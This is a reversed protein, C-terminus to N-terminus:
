RDSLDSTMVDYEPHSPDDRLREFAHREAEDPNIDGSCAMIAAREQLWEWQAETVRMLGCRACQILGRIASESDFSGRGRCHNRSPGVLPTRDPLLCHRCIERGDSWAWRETSGCVECPVADTLTPQPADSEVHEAKLLALIAATECAIVQKLEPTLLGKRQRVRLADGEITVVGGHARLMDLVATARM